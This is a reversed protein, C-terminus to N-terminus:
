QKSENGDGVLTLSEAVNIAEFLTKRFLIFHPDRKMEKNSTSNAYTKGVDKLMELKSLLTIFSITPSFIKDAGTIEVIITDLHKRWEERKELLPLTKFIQNKVYNIYGNYVDSTIPGHKTILMQNIEATTLFDKILSSLFAVDKGFSQQQSSQQWKVFQQKWGDAMTKDILIQYKMTTRGGQWDM